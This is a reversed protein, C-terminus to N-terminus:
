FGGRKPETTGVKEVDEENRREIGRSFAFVSIIIIASFAIIALEMLIFTNLSERFAGAFLVSILTAFFYLFLASTGGAKLFVKSHNANTFRLMILGTFLAVESLLLFALGWNNTPIREIERLFFVALTLAIIIFGIVGTATVGNRNRM